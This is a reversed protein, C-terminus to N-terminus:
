VSCDLGKVQQLLVYAYLMCVVYSIASGLSFTELKTKHELSIKLIHQHEGDM